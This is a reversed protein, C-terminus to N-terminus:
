AALLRSLRFFLADLALQESVNLDLSRRTEQV